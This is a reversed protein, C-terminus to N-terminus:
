NLRSRRAVSRQRGAPEDGGWGDGWGGFGTRRRQEGRGRTDNVTRKGERRRSEGRRGAVTDNM